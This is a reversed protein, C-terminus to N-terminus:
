LISPPPERQLSRLFRAKEIGPNQPPLARCPLRCGPHCLLQLRSLSSCLGRAIDAAIRRVVGANKNDASFHM